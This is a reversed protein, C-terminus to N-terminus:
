REMALICPREKDNRGAPPRPRKAAGRQMEMAKWSSMHREVVESAGRKQMAGRLSPRKACDFKLRPDCDRAAKSDGENARQAQVLIGRGLASHLVEDCAELRLGGFRAFSRCWRSHNVTKRSVGNVALAKGGSSQQKKQYGEREATGKVVAPM